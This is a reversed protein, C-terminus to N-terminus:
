ENPKCKYVETLEEVSWPRTHGDPYTFRKTMSDLHRRKTVKKEEPIIVGRGYLEKIRTMRIYEIVEGKRLRDFGEIDLRSFGKAKVGENGLEKWTGDRQLELGDLMYLKPALFNGERILKELKLGGLDNSIAYRDTTSFGDTDCYHFESACTMYNYLTARAAATIYASIPVHMHPIPVRTEEIWAGPFLMKMSDNDIVKPDVKLSSKFASEAFKGYLSNLLYKYVIREFDDTSAKRKAYITQVYGALDNFPAFEICEYVKMIRGGAKLLLEIDVSMFWSRWKGTPFFLRGDFRAALPPLYDEPVEIEIDAMYMGDDPLYRSHDIVRGPCPKTMSYPFSSNIDYYSADWCQNNFVEVRSAFYAQRAKENVQHCTDIEKTLYARRFLHMACSAITMQLQGGMDFLATEMQNIAEYLILCDTQNYRILEDIPANTYFERAEKETMRKEKEAKEIGVFKGINELSDRFLWFSDVFTWCNKGQKIRVIIASSGSFSANVEFKCSSIVAELIFQVDALGGAHAYFWAGRNTSNLEAALFAEITHYCRYGKKRDYVGAVRLKLSGPIWELDYTLFRRVKRKSKIVTLSM